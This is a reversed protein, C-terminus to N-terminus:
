EVKWTIGKVSACTPGGDSGVGQFETVLSLGTTNLLENIQRREVSMLSVKARRDWASGPQGARRGSNVYIFRGNKPGQVYNGLFNPEDSTLDVTIAFSFVLDRGITRAPPLLEYMGRQVQMAVGAVPDTVTIQINIEHKM